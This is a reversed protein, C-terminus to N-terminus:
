SMYDVDHLQRFGILLALIFGVSDKSQATELSIVLDNYRQFFLRFLRYPDDTFIGVPDFKAGLLTVYVHSARLQTPPARFRQVAAFNLTDFPFLTVVSSNPTDEETSVPHIAAQISRCISCVKIASHDKRRGVDACDAAKAADPGGLRTTSDVVSDDKPATQPAEAADDDNCKSQDGDNITTTAEQEIRDLDLDDLDDDDDSFDM